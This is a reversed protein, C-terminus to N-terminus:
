PKHRRPNSQLATSSHDKPDGVIVTEIGLRQATSFEPVGEVSYDTGKAHFMPRLRELLDTVDLEEFVVVYDVSRLALLLEARERAPM